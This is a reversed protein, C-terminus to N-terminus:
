ITIPELLCISLKKYQPYRDILEDKKSKVNRQDIKIRTNQKNGDLVFLSRKTTRKKAGLIEWRFGFATANKFVAKSIYTGKGVEGTVDYAASEISSYTKVFEGHSNFCKVVRRNALSAAEAIQLKTKALHKEISLYQLNKLTNDTRDGSIHDVEFPYSPEPFFLRLLTRAVNINSSVKKGNIIKPVRFQRKTCPYVPRPCKLNRIRAHEDIEFGHFEAGISRFGPVFTGYLPHTALKTKKEDHIECGNYSPNIKTDLCKQCIEITGCYLKLDKWQYSHKLIQVKIDQLDGSSEVNQYRESFNPLVEFCKLIDVVQCNNIFKVHIESDVIKQLLNRCFNSPIILYNGNQWFTSKKNM